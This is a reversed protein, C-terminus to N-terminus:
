LDFSLWCIVYTIVILFYITTTTFVMDTGVMTDKVEVFNHSLIIINISVGDLIGVFYSLLLLM